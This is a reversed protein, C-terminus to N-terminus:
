AAEKKEGRFHIVEPGLWEGHQRWYAERFLHLRILTILALLGDKAVWRQDVDDEPEWICLTGSDYRHPSEEPGDVTIRPEGPKSGNYFRIEVERDEYEPVEVILGYIVEQPHRGVRSGRVERYALRADHEFRIRARFDDFWGGRRRRM